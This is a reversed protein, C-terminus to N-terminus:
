ATFLPTYINHPLFLPSHFPWCDGPISGMTIYGLLREESFMSKMYYIAIGSDPFFFSDPIRSPKHSTTLTVRFLVIALLSLPLLWQTGM